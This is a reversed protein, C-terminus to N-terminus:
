TQSTTRLFVFDDAAKAADQLSVAGPRQTLPGGGIAVGDARPLEQVNEALVKHLSDSILGLPDVLHDLRGRAISRCFAEYSLLLTRDPEGTTKGGALPRDLFIATGLEQLEAQERLDEVAHSLAKAAVAGPALSQGDYLRKTRKAPQLIQEEPVRVYPPPLVR